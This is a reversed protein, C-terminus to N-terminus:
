EDLNLGIIIKVENDPLDYIVVRKVVDGPIGDIIVTDGLQPVFVNDGEIKVLDEESLRVRYNRFVVKM